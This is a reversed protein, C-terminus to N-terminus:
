HRAYEGQGTGKGSVMGSMCHGLFVGLPFIVFNYIIANDTFFYLLACGIAVLNSLALTGQPSGMGHSTFTRLSKYLVIFFFGLFLALGVFGHDYVIRLYDNHPHTMNTQIMLRKAAGVGRGWLANDAIGDVLITWNMARGEGNITLGAVQLTADNGSMRTNFSPIYLYAAIGCLAAASVCGLFRVGSFARNRISFGILLIVLSCLSSMRSITLFSVIALLALVCLKWRRNELLYDLLCYSMAVVCFLTGSRGCPFNIEGAENVLGFVAPYSYYYILALWPIVRALKRLGQESHVSRGLLYALLFLLYALCEQIEISGVTPGLLGAWVKALFAAYLLVELSNRAVYTPITLLLPSLLAVLLVTTMGSISISAVPSSVPLSVSLIPLMLMLVLFFKYLFKM